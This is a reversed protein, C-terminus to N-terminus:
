SLLAEPDVGLSRLHAALREAKQRELEAQKQAQAAQQQAQVFKQREQLAAEAPTPILEGEPSFYPLKRNHIGLYLGLAESWRWGQENAPIEQYHFGQLRWGIFGLSEPSFWFYEPIRFINQYIEKKTTRDAQATSDSLLEIILDPYRGGEEWVVWSPRPWQVVNKVLFFDPGRFDKSKLQEQNFYITLNYGIFYDERGLWLWELISVLLLIQAAHLSSEIEPEDSLLRKASPMLEALQEPTIPIPLSLPKDQVQM